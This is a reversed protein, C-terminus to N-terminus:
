ITKAGKDLNCRAHSPRVNELTDPGGQAIPIVHDVHFAMEWGDKGCSRPASFDIEMKCLHCCTGYTEIVQAETYYLVGNNRILARRRSAERNRAPQNTKRWEKVRLYNEGPRAAWYEKQRAKVKEVNKQASKRAIARHHEPDKWYKARVHLKICDVCQSSRGTKATKKVHFSTLPKIEKCKSCPKTQM